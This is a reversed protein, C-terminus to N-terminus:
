GSCGGGEGMRRISAEGVGRLIEEEVEEEGERSIITEEIRKKRINNTTRVVRISRAVVQSVKRSMAMSSSRIVVAEEGIRTTM